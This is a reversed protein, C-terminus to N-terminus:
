KDGLNKHKKLAGPYDTSHVNCLGASSPCNSLFDTYGATPLLLHTVM